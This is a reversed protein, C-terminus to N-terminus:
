EVPQAKATVDMTQAALREARRQRAVEALERCTRFFEIWAVSVTEDTALSLSHTKPANM